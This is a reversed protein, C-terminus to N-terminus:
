CKKPQKLQPRVRCWKAMWRIVVSKLRIFVAENLPTVKQAMSLRVALQLFLEPTHVQLSLFMSYAQNRQQPGSYTFTVTNYTASTSSTTTLEPTTSSSGDGPLVVSFKTNGIKQGTQMKFTGSASPMSKVKICFVGGLHKMSISGDSVAGWMPANFSNGEGKSATFFTEDVKTYTYSNPLYYTLTATGNDSITVKDNSNYPYVAYGSPESTSSGTFTGSAQGVSEASLTYTDFATANDTSTVGIKDNKSWYFKGNEDFGVRTKPTDKKVSATLVYEKLSSSSTGFLDDESSCAAVTGATFLLLTLHRIKM